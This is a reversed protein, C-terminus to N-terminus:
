PVGDASRTAAIAARLRDVERRWRYEQRRYLKLDALLRGQVPGDRRARRIAEIQDRIMAAFFDAQGEAEILLRRGPSGCLAIKRLPEPIPGDFRWELAAMADTSDAAALNGERDTM